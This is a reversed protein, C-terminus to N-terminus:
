IFLSWKPHNPTSYIPDGLPNTHSLIHRIFSKPPEQILIIDMIDKNNKLIINTLTKNKRVNQSFIKLTEKIM